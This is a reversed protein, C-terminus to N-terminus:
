VKHEQDEPVLANLKLRFRSSPPPFRPHPSSTGYRVLSRNAHTNPEPTLRSPFRAPCSYGSAELVGQKDMMCDCVAETKFNVGEGGLDLTRVSAKAAFTRVNM